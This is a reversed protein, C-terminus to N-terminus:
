GCRAIFTDLDTVRFYLRGALRKAGLGEYFAIGRTNEQDATWDLRRCARARATEGLRKLLTRGIGTGRAAPSVFLEKMFMQGGVGDTPHLITYIAYGLPTAGDWAIITESFGTEFLDSLVTAYGEATKERGYYHRDTQRLLLEMAPADAMSGPRLDIM